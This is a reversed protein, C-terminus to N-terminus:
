SINRLPISFKPNSTISNSCSFDANILLFDGKLEGAMQSIKGEEGGLNIQKALWQGGPLNNVMSELRDAGDDIIDFIKGFKPFCHSLIKITQPVVVVGGGGM